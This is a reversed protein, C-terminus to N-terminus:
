LSISIQLAPVECSISERIASGAPTPLVAVSRTRIPCGPIKFAAADFWRYISSKETPLNGDAIRDPRGASRPLTPLILGPFSPTFYQGSQLNV